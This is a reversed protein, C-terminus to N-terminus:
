NPHEPREEAGAPPPYSGRPPRDLVVPRISHLSSRVPPPAPRVPVDFGGDLQRLTGRCGTELRAAAGLARTSDLQATYSYTPADLANTERGSPAGASTRETPLDQQTFRNFRDSGSLSRRPEPSLEHRRQIISSLAVITM